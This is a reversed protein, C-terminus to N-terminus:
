PADGYHVSSFLYFELEPSWLSVDAHGSDRLVNEARAAIVSPDLAFPTRTDAEAASAIISVVVHGRLERVLATAPDPILVMDGRELSKFGPVSSGDFGIGQKFLSSTVNAAPLTVHHWRGPLDAFRVDLFDADSMIRVFEESGHSTTLRERISRIEDM